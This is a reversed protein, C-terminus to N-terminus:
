LLEVHPAAVDPPRLHPPCRLLCHQMRYRSSDVWPGLQPPAVQSSLVNMLNFMCNGFCCREACQWSMSSGDRHGQDLCERVGRAYACAHWRVVAKHPVAGIAGVAWKVHQGAGHMAVMTNVARRGGKM